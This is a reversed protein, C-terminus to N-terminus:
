RISRWIYRQREWEGRGEEELEEVVDRAGELEPGEQGWWRKTVWTM